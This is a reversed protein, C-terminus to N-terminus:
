RADERVADIVVRLDVQLQELWELPWDNVTELVGEIEKEM